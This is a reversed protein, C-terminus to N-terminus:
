QKKIRDLETKLDDFLKDIDTAKQQMLPTVVINTFATHMEPAWPSQHIRPMLKALDLYLDGTVQGDYYDYPQHVMKDELAPIYSPIIGREAVDELVAKTLHAEEIVKWAEDKHKAGQPISFSTGGWTATPVGKGIGSPIPQLRWQKEQGPGINTDNGLKGNLWPPGLLAAMKNQRFAEWFVPPSTTDTGTVPSIIAIKMENVLKNQFALIQKGIDNLGGFDGNDLFMQGGANFLMMQFDGDSQDHFSIVAMNKKEKLTQGAKVLDDWTKFPTEVGIEDFVSKRYALTCANVENGIGYINGKWSWYDVASGPVLDKIRDGILDKMDVFCITDGKFFGSMRGQEVRMMDPLGVGSACAALMKDHIEAFPAVVKKISWGPHKDWFGSNKLATNVWDIGQDWHAWVELEVKNDAAPAAAGGGAAGPAGPAPCAALLMAGAALTSGVRLFDRRSLKSTAKSM